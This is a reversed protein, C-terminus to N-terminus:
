VATPESPYIAAPPVVAGIPALAASMASVNRVNLTEEEDDGSTSPSAVSAVHALPQNALLSAM